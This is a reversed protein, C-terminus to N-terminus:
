KGGCSYNFGGGDIPAAFAVRFRTRESVSIFYGSGAAIPDMPTLVCFGAGPFATAFEVTCGRARSGTKFQGAASTSQPHPAPPAKGCDSLTPAAGITLFRHAYADGERTLGAAEVETKSDVWSVGKAHFRLGLSSEGAVSDNRIFAGRAGYADNSWRIEHHPALEVAIAGPNAFTAPAGTARTEVPASIEVRNGTTFVATVISGPPVDRSVVMQGAVVGLSQPSAPLTIVRDGEAASITTSVDRAGNSGALATSGFVLGRLVQGGFNPAAILASSPWFDRRPHSGGGPDLQLHAQWGANNVQFPNITPPYGAYNPMAIEHGVANAGAATRAVESYLCEAYAHRGAGPADSLQFCGYGSSVRYQGGGAYDSAKGITVVGYGGKPQGILVQADRPLYNVGFDRYPPPLEENGLDARDPIDVGWGFRAKGRSLVSPLISPAAEPQSRPKRAEELPRPSDSGDFAQAVNIAHMLALLGTLGLRTANM